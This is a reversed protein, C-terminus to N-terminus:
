LMLWLEYQKNIMRFNYYLYLILRICLFLPSMIIFLIGIFFSCKVLNGLPICIISSWFYRRSFNILYKFFSFGSQIIMAPSMYSRAMGGVSATWNNFSVNAFIIKSKS